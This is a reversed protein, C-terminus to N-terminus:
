ETWRYKAADSYDLNITEEGALKYNDLDKWSDAEADYAQIQVAWESDAGSKVKFGHGEEDEFAAKYSGDAQLEMAVGTAWGNFDGIVAPVIGETVAPLKAVVVYNHKKAEVCPSNGNKWSSSKYIVPKTPDNYTLNAEGAYGAEITVDGAEITWSAEDGTQFDWALTGDKKAQIPKGQLAVHNGDDDTANDPIYAIYWGKFDKMPEMKINAADLTWKSEAYNGVFYIDNCVTGEAAQFCITYFGEKVTLDSEDPTTSTSPTPIIPDDEGENGPKNCSALSLAGLALAAFMFKTAKM